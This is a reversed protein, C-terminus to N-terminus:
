YEYAGVDTSAGQPRANGLFDITVIGPFDLGGHIAPSGTTLTLDALSLFSPNVVRSTSDTGSASKWGAFSLNYSDGYKFNVGGSGAASWYINNRMTLDGPTTLANASVGVLSRGNASSAYVINNSIDINVGAQGVESENSILIAYSAVRAVDYCSNNYIKVNFSSSTALCGWDAGVVVNNRMIGDLSEYQTDVLRIADTQQGLMLAHSGTNVVRNNEFIANRANGKAYIGIDPVDHVYNFAVHANDAGVIDIGQANGSPTTVRSDQWIENGLLEVDNATRVLKVVDAVACCLKNNILKVSPTDIKVANGDGTGSASGQITLGELIWYVPLCPVSSYEDCASTYFYVSPAITSGRIIVEGDGYAKMRIWATSDGRRSGIQVRDYTGARVRILDGPGVSGVAKALTRFPAAETGLNRNDDGNMAVFYTNAAVACAGATFTWVKSAAIAVGFTDRAATSVTAVYQTGSTLPVIPTFTATKRDASGAAGGTVTTGGSTKVTFAAAFTQTDMAKSFHAAIVGCGDVATALPIPATSVVFPVSRDDVNGGNGGGGATDSSGGGGCSSVLLAALAAISILACRFPNPPTAEM